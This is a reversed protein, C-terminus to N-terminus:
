LFCLLKPIIAIWLHDNFSSLSYHWYYEGNFTVLLYTLISLISCIALIHWWVLL